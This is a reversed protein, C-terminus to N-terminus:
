IARSSRGENGEILNPDITPDEDVHVEERRVKGRVQETRQEAEKSVGHVFRIRDSKGQVSALITQGWRGLGVMAAQIM